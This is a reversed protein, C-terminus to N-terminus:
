LINKVSYFYIRIKNHKTPSRWGNMNVVKGFYWICETISEKSQHGQERDPTPQYIAGNDLVLVVRNSMLPFYCRGAQNEKLPRGAKEACLM